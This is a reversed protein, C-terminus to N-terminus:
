FSLRPAQWPRGGAAHIQRRVAHRLRCARKHISAKMAHRSVGRQGAETGTRAAGGENKASCQQMYQQSNNGTQVLTEKNKLGM